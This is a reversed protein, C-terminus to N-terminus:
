GLIKLCMSVFLYQYLINVKYCLKILRLCLAKIAKFSNAMTTNLSYSLCYAAVFIIGFFFSNEEQRLNKLLTTM